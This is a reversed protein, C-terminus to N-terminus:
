RKVEVPTTTPNIRELRELTTGPIPEGDWGATLRNSIQDELDALFNRSEAKPLPIFRHDYDQTPAPAFQQVLMERSYPDLRVTYKGQTMGVPVVKGNGLKELFLVVEEDASFRAAGHVVTHAKGWTGGVQDIIYATQSKDGKYTQEVAVQARTWVVGREDQETWVEVVKGRIVADSGFVLQDTTLEVLTTAQASQTLSLAGLASAAIMFIARSLAGNKM